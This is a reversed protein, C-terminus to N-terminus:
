VILLYIMGTRLDRENLNIEHVHKKQSKQKELSVYFETPLRTNMKRIQKDPGVRDEIDDLTLLPMYNDEPRFFLNPQAECKSIQMQPAKVMEKIKDDSKPVYKGVENSTVKGEGQSYGIALMQPKDNLKQQTNFEIAKIDPRGQCEIALQNLQNAKEAQDFMWSYKERFKQKDAEQLKMFASSDESTYKVLFQDLNLGSTLESAQRDELFIVICSIGETFVEGKTMNLAKTMIRQVPDFEDGM